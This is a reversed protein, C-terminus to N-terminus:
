KGHCCRCASQVNPITPINQVNINNNLLNGCLPSKKKKPTDLIPTAHWLSYKTCGSSVGCFAGALFSKLLKLVLLM